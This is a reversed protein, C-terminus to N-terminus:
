KEFSRRYRAIAERSSYWIRGEKFAELKGTRALLSLYEQGYPMTPEEAIASLPLYESDGGGLTSLFIDLSREAAQAMLLMLKEFKGANAQNLATYYKSRDQRLIIAPPFGAQMLILNMALRATRGNGDFFPHVWVFRHHFVAAKSVPDLSAPAEHVWAVLEDIYASVKLPNPPIFDTGSIRVRGTRFRGAFDPDINEMVLRHLELLDATQLTYAPSVLQEIRHIAKRHNHAEFHERLSRGGITLGDQLVVRTENYSLTNGEISNSHYTWEVALDEKLRQLASVPFPRLADLHQKKSQLRKQIEPSIFTDPLWSKM